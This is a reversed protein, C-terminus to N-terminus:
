PKACSLWVPEGGNRAPTCDYRFIEGTAPDIRLLYMWRGEILSRIQSYLFLVRDIASQPAEIWAAMRLPTRRWPESDNRIFARVAGPLNGDECKPIALAPAAVSHQLSGGNGLRVGDVATAFSQMNIWHAILLPATMIAELVTGDPDLDSRYDHLFVRGSLNLARTRLRPAIIIGTGALGQGHGFEFGDRHYGRLTQMLQSDTLGLLSLLPSREKRARASASHLWARVQDLAQAGRTATKNADPPDLLQMEGSGSDHVAALFHTTAPIDIGEERSLGRRVDSRNLLEALIRINSARLQGCCASCEAGGDARQRAADAHGVLLILPAFRQTLSMGRLISHLLAVCERLVAKALRPRKRDSGKPVAGKKDPAGAVASEMSEHLFRWICALSVSEAFSDNCKDPEPMHSPSSHLALWPMEPAGAATPVDDAPLGIFGAFGLTEIQPNCAELARRLPEAHADLCFIAQLPPAPENRILLVGQETLQTHLPEQYKRELSEQLPWLPSIEIIPRPHFCRQLQERWQRRGDADTAQNYLMWEWALRIALLQELNEFEHGGSQAQAPWPRSARWLDGSNLTLLLATFYDDLGNRPLQMAAVASAILLRPKRPLEAIAAALGPIGSLRSASEDQSALAAWHAYLGRPRIPGLARFSPMLRQPRAEPLPSQLRRPRTFGPIPALPHWRTQDQDFFSACAQSISQTVMDRCSIGRMLGRRADIADTMLPLREPADDPDIVGGDRDLDEREEDTSRETEPQRPFWAPPMLMSKGTLTMLKADVQEIPLNLWGLYPNVAVPPNVPWFFAVRRCAAAISGALTHANGTPVFQVVHM